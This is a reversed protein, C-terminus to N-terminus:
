KYVKRNKIHKLPLTPTKLGYNNWRVRFTTMKDLNDLYWRPNMYLEYLQEDYIVGEEVLSYGNDKLNTRKKLLYLDM